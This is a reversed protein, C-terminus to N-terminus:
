NTFRRNYIHIFMNTVHKKHIGTRATRSPFVLAVCISDYHRQKGESSFNVLVNAM